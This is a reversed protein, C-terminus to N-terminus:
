RLAVHKMVLHADETMTMLSDRSPDHRFFPPGICKRAAAARECTGARGDVSREFVCLRVRVCGCLCLCMCACV